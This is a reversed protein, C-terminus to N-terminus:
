RWLNVFNAVDRMVVPTVLLSNRCRSPTSELIETVSDEKVKERAKFYAGSRRLSEEFRGHPSFGYYNGKRKAM